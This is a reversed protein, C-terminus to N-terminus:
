MRSMGSGVVFTFFVKLNKRHQDILKKAITPKNKLKELIEDDFKQTIVVAGQADHNIMYNRASAPKGLIMKYAYLFFAFDRENSRLWNLRHADIRNTEHPNKFYHNLSTTLELVSELFNEARKIEVLLTPEGKISKVNPSNLQSLLIKFIRRQNEAEASLQTFVIEPNIKGEAIKFRNPFLKNFHLTSDIFREKDFDNNDMKVAEAQYDIENIKVGLSSALDAMESVLNFVRNLTLESLDEATFILYYLYESVTGTLVEFNDPKQIEPMYFSHFVRNFEKINLADKPIIKEFFASIKSHIIEIYPEIIQEKREEPDLEDGESVIKQQARTLKSRLRLSNQFIWGDEVKQVDLSKDSLSLALLKIEEIKQRIYRERNIKRDTNQSIEKSKRHWFDEIKKLLKQRQRNRNKIKIKIKEVDYNTIEKQIAMLKQKEIAREDEGLDIELNQENMQRHIQDFLSRDTNAELRFGLDFYLIYFLEENSVDSLMANKYLHMKLQKEMFPSAHKYIHYLIQSHHVTLKKASSIKREEDILFLQYLLSENQSKSLSGSNNYIALVLESCKHITKEEEHAFINVGWFFAAIYFFFANRLM